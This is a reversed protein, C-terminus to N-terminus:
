EEIYISIHVKLKQFKVELNLLSNSPAIIVLLYKPFMKLLYKLFLITADPNQQAVHHSIICGVM